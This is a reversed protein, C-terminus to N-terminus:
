WSLEGEGTSAQSGNSVFARHGLRVAFHTLRSQILIAQGADVGSRREEGTLDYHTLFSWRQRAEQRYSKKRALTDAREGGQFGFM